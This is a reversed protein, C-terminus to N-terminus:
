APALYRLNSFLFFVLVPVGVCVAAKRPSLASAHRLGHTMLIFRWLLAILSGGTVILSLV